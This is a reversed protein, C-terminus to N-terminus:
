EKGKVKDDRKHQEDRGDVQLVTLTHAEFLAIHILGGHERFVGGGHRPMPDVLARAPQMQDIQVASEHALGAVLGRDLGDEGLHPALNRHLEATADAIEVGDLAPQVIPQREDDDARRRDLIRAEQLVGAGREAAVDDDPEIGLVALHRGVAPALQGAMFHHIQGALVLVVADFGDDVGVDAAVAHQLADIDIRRDLQRLRHRDRHDGAAAQGAQLVDVVQAGHLGLAHLAHDAPAGDVRAVEIEPLRLFVRVLEARAQATEGPGAPDPDKLCEPRM